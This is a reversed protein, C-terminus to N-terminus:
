EVPISVHPQRFKDESTWDAGNIEKATHLHLNHKTIVKAEGQTTWGVTFYPPESPLADTFVTIWGPMYVKAGLEPVIESYNENAALKIAKLTGNEKNKIIITYKGADHMFAREVPINIEHNVIPSRKIRNINILAFWCVTGIVTLAFFFAKLM